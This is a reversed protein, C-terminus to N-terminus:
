PTETLINLEVLENNEDFALKFVNGLDFPQGSNCFYLEYDKQSESWPSPSIPQGLKQFLMTESMGISLGSPTQWRQDSAILGTVRGQFVDVFLGDYVLRDEIWLDLLNPHKTTSIPPGLLSTVQERTAGLQVGGLSFETDQICVNGSVFANQESILAIPESDSKSLCGALLTLALCYPTFRMKCLIAM